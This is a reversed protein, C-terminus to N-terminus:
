LSLRPQNGMAKLALLLGLAAIAAMVFFAHGGFAAYLSGTALTVIGTTAGVAIAQLMQASAALGPPTHRALYTMAALHTAAFSFGHLSQVV